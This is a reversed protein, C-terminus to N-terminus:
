WTGFTRASIVCFIIRVASLIRLAILHFRRLYHDKKYEGLFMLLSPMNELKVNFNNIILQHSNCNFLTM